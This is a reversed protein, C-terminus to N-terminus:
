FIAAVIVLSISSVEKHHGQSLLIESGPERPSGEGGNAETVFSRAKQLWALSATFQLM